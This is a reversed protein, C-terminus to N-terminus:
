SAASWRHTSEVAEGPQVDATGAGAQTAALANLAEGPLPFWRIREFEPTLVPDPLPGRPPELEIRQFVSRAEELHRALAGEPETARRRPLRSVGSGFSVDHLSISPGPRARAHRWLGTDPDFRYLPLLKWGHTALLEVAEIVYDLVADSWFYNFSLRVYSLKAGLHGLRAEAHMRASWLDDIPALRHLYPGACFCGSRAQIGFLDSLAAALFHSHLLGRGHRVGLSVIALRDIEPNGLIEINPNRRWRYLAQRVADRERRRIEAVGVAEKLAFVLGARISEVIAPTGAEERITPDPHYSHTSPGVFLITGDGPVTPVRNRFLHRKAVLVGPTGPGGVFKHPSVFVADKYALRGDHIPPSPNMDVRACEADRGVVDPTRGALGADNV